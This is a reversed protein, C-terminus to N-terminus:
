GGAEAQGKAAIDWGLMESACDHCFGCEAQIPVVLKPLDRVHYLRGMYVAPQACRTCSSTTM